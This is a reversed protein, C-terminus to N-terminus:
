SESTEKKTKSLWDTNLPEHITAEFSANFIDKFSLNSISCEYDGRVLENIAKAIAAELEHVSISKLKNDFESSM